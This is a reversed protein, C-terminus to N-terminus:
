KQARMLPPAPAHSGHFDKDISGATLEADTLWVLPLVSCVFPVVAVAEPLASIDSSYECRFVREDTYYASIDGETRFSIDLTHTGVSVSEVIIRNKM